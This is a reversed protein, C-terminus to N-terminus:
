FSGSSPLAASNPEAEVQEGIADLEVESAWGNKGLARAQDCLHRETSQFVAM